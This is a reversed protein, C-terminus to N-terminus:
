VYKLVADQSPKFGGLLLAILALVCEMGFGDLQDEPIRAICKCLFDPLGLEIMKLQSQKIQTMSTEWDENEWEAAPTIAEENENCSEILM